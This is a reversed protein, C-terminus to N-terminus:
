PASRPRRRRQRAHQGHLAVDPPNSGASGPRSGPRRGRGSHNATSGSRPMARRPPAPAESAAAEGELRGLAPAARRSEEDVADLCAVSCNPPKAQFRYPSVPAPRVTPWEHPSGGTTPTGSQFPACPRRSRTSMSTSPGARAQVGFGLRGVDDGLLLRSRRIVSLSRHGRDPPARRLQHHHGPPRLRRRPRPCSRRRGVGAPQDPQVVGRPRARDHRHLHRERAHVPVRRQARRGARLDDPRLQRRGGGRGPQRAPALRRAPRPRRRRDHHPPPRAPHEADGGPHRRAATGEPRLGVRLAPRRLPRDPDVLRSPEDAAPPAATTSPPLEALTAVSPDITYRFVGSNASPGPSGPERFGAVAWVDDGVVAVGGSVLGTLADSWLVEGTRLDLARLAFDLSGVFVVGGVETSPAYTPGVADQQWLVEGTAADLGHMCPCPGVGTGGAIVGDAHTSPGIFGGTAFGPRINNPETAQTKWAPAGTERDVAYFAADKSGLGVLDQGGAEFLLPAGAFDTDDNNPEHPQFSWEPEGSDLDVAVIAENYDTWGQDPVPCSATGFFVLRRETDVSAAGWVDGCGNHDGDELDLAWREEGTQLDLALVGAPFPGNHVDYTIIATDGVLLPATEIETSDGDEGLVRTWRETGDAAALAHVTRGGNFVVLREGDAGDAVAASATIQGAYVTPSPEADYVWQEAGSAADLAYFRGAWDGVYVTGGVVVPAATVADSTEVYWVRHLDPVTDPSIGSDCPYSFTRHNGHGWTPWDCPDTGSEVLEVAAGSGDDSCAAAVLVVAVLAAVARLRPPSSRGPGRSM